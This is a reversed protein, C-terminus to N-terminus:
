TYTNQFNMKFTNKLRSDVKVKINDDTSSAYFRSEIFKWNVLSWFKELYEKRDNKYDLYYSHEWLDCVLLPRLGLDLPCDANSTSIIVLEKHISEALWVWGSGFQDLGVKQFQDKFGNLSSFERVLVKMLNESPETNHKASMCQWYFAHNWAQRANKYIKKNVTDEASSASNIIIEELSLSEFSTGKILKNLKDIYGKHHKGYHLRLTAESIYPELATFKYPLKALIIKNNSKM